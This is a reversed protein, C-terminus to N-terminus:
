LLPSEETEVSLDERFPVERGVGEEECGVSSVQRGWNDEKYCRLVTCTSLM